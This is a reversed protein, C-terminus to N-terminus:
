AVIKVSAPYQYRMMKAASDEQCSELAASHEVVYSDINRFRSLQTRISDRQEHSSAIPQYNGQKWGWKGLLPEARKIHEGTPAPESALSIVDKFYLGDTDLCRWVQLPGVLTQKQH